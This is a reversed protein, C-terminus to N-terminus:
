AALHVLCLANGERLECRPVHEEEPRAPRAGLCARDAVGPDVEAGAPHNMRGALSDGDAREGAPVPLLKCIPLADHLSLTYIETPAPATFFFIAPRRPGPDESALALVVYVVMVVVGAITIM